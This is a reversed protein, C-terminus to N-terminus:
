HTTKSEPMTFAADITAANTGFLQNYYAILGGAQEIEKALQEGLQKLQADTLGTNNAKNRM